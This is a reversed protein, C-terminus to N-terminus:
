QTKASSINTIGVAFWDCWIVDNGKSVELSLISAGATEVAISEKFGRDLRVKTAERGDLSWSLDVIGAEPNGTCDPNGAFSEIVPELTLSTTGKVNIRMHASADEGPHLLYRFDPQLAVPQSPSESSVIREALWRQGIALQAADALEPEAVAPAPLAGAGPASANTAPAAAPALQEPERLDCGTLFSGVLLVACTPALIKVNAPGM